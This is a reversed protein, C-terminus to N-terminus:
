PHPGPAEGARRRIEKAAYYTQTFWGLTLVVWVATHWTGAWIVAQLLSILGGVVSSTKITRLTPTSRKPFRLATRFYHHTGPM